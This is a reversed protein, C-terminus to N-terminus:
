FGVRWKNLVSNDVVYVKYYFGNKWFRKLKTYNKSEVLVSNILVKNQTRQISEKIQKM